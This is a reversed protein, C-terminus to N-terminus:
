RPLILMVPLLKSIVIHHWEGISLPNHNNHHQSYVLLHTTYDAKVSCPSYKRTEHSKTSYCLVACHQWNNRTVTKKTMKM